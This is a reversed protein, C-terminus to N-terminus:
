ARVPVGAPVSASRSARERHILYALPAISGLVFTAVVYPLYPLGQERADKIMWGMAIALAVVFDVVIQVGWISNAAFALTAEYFAFYGESGVAYITLATFDALVLWLVIEKKSM